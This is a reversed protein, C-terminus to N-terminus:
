GAALAYREHGRPVLAVARFSCRVSTELPTGRFGPPDTKSASTPRNQKGIVLMHSVAAELLPICEQGAKGELDALRTGSLALTWMGSVNSTMNGIDEVTAPDTGGTDIQMYTDYSM